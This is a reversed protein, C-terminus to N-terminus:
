KSGGQACQWVKTEIFEGSDCLDQDADIMCACADKGGEREEEERVRWFKKTKPPKSWANRSRADTAALGPSQHHETRAQYFRPNLASSCTPGGLPIVAPANIGTCGASSPFGTLNAQGLCRTASSGPMRRVTASGSM